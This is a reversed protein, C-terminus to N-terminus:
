IKNNIISFTFLFLELISFCMKSSNIFYIVFILINKEIQKKNKHFITEFSYFLWLFLPIYNIAGFELFLFVM